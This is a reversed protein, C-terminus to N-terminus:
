NVKFSIPPLDRISGDDGRAKIDGIYVISNINVRDLAQKQEQTFRNSRSPYRNIFGGAATTELTFETVTYKFDFDFDELVALVGDQIRLLEKKINGGSQGNVQAVPDPVQKVRWSTTNILRRQGKITAYVSVKTRTQNPDLESPEIMYNNGVKTVKGNTMTVDLNENPIAGGGVEFPNKLGKYFVNMKTASMTVTPKAVQYEQEFPYTKIIGGPTKYKILGSWSFVGPNDTNGRYVAKGDKVEVERGNIIIVPQQTTDEAALFVDAVYEDGQLVIKSNAIVRAKLRNFKFSGADIESYLYKAISAEANKIDIQIKSLLTIVAVLPKDEFHESEWTKNGGEDKSRKVPDSTDLESLITQKLEEDDESVLSVLFERYEVVKAKLEDAKKQTIMLESPGNLDDEKGVEVMTGDVKEHFFGEDDIPNEENVPASGSYDIVEDKLAHVYQIIEASKDRVEDAKTKWEEVKAPNEAYAQEFSSYIQANQMDVAKLTQMLSSDVVRFAELVEAAVNLALMATLVIYM